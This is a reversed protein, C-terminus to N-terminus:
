NFKAIAEKESKSIDFVPLLLAIQFTSYAQNNLSVLKLEGGINQVTRLSAVMEGVGTSDIYEMESLNVLINKKDKALLEDITERLKECGDTMTLKGAIDIISIDQEERIGINM